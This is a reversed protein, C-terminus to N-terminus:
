FSIWATWHMHLDDRRSPFQDHTLPVAAVTRICLLRLRLRTCDPHFPIRAIGPRLLLILREAPLDVLASGVETHPHLLVDADRDCEPREPQLDPVSATAYTGKLRSLERRHEEHQSRESDTGEDRHRPM